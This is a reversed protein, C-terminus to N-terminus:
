LSLWKQDEQIHLQIIQYDYILYMLYVSEFVEVNDIYINLFIM